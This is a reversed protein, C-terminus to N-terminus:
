EIALVGLVAIFVLRPNGLVLFTVNNALDKIALDPDLFGSESLNLIRDEELRQKTRKYSGRDQNADETGNRLAVEESLHLGESTVLGTLFFIQSYPNPHSDHTPKKPTEKIGVTKGERAVTTVNAIQDSKWVQKKSILYRV